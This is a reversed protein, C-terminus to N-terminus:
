AFSPASNGTQPSLAAAGRLRKVALVAGPEDPDHRLGFGLQRALGIMRRNDALITGWVEEVGRARAYDLVAELAARGLGVGQEDTRVTVAFEARRGDPDMSVRAGGLIEGPSDPDEAILAMERDYDIQTLRAVLEPPLERM